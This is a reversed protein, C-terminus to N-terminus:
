TEIGQSIILNNEENLDECIMAGLDSIGFWGVKWLHHVPREMYKEAMFVPREWVLSYTIPFIIAYVMGQILSLIASTIFISLIDEFVVGDFMQLPSGLDHCAMIIMAQLSLIFFSWMRDFSRFIEFIVQYIPTVVNNLFSEVGGGYAPMVKEGTKTSVAGTLIGHLEYAMKSISSQKHSQRVHINALLLILHERQNAVNGEQFGFCYHLFEFLDMFAGTKQFDQASPLGRTNRVAAIAAKIESLQLIAHQIGGHDLPLINSDRDALAQPGAASTVTRLVEYLVSAIRRANILKEKHSDDLDFEGGSRIVYDKYTQYVRKLERIDSKEKRRKITTEEDQELRQLLSTKFQRVGRGTSNRDKNHAIEFAHFRCLYAIRPHDTEILNAVRLFRQIDSHLTPPLRESDFPQPVHERGWTLSRTFPITTNDSSESEHSSIPLADPPDYYIIEDDIPDAPVISITM